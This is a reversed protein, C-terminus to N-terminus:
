EQSPSMETQSAEENVGSNSVSENTIEITENLEELEEKRKESIKYITINKAEIPLEIRVKGEKDQKINKKWKVPQNIRIPLHTTNITLNGIMGETINESIIINFFNSEASGFDNTAIIRSERTGTFDRDPTIKLTHDYTTTSINMTQLTYYESAFKFYESISIEAQSNIPLYIDPIEKILSPPQTINVTETINEETEEIKETLLEYKIENLNLQADKIEVRITYSSKSLNLGSLDCTEECIDTFEIVGEISIEPEEETENTPITENSNPEVENETQNEESSPLSEEQSPSTDTQSAEENVGSNSTSDTSDSSSELSTETATEDIAQGTLLSPKKELNKSDLILLDDLYIKVDKGKFNGSIKLSSLQGQNQIQWEYLSSENFQINM